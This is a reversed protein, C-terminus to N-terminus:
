ILGQLPADHGAPLASHILTESSDAGAENRPVPPIWEGSFM